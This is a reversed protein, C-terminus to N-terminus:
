LIKPIKIVAITGGDESNCYTLGYEEGYQMQIRQNVNHVGLGGTNKTITEIGKIHNNIKDIENCEGNDKVFIKLNDGSAELGIEIKLTDDKVYDFGHNVANEVLPQVIMKPILYRMDENEITIKFDIKDGYKLMQLQMYDEIQKLENEIPVMADPEKISYRMINALNSLAQAIDAEGRILSICCISDLSNYVFHPNIQAQLMNLKAKKEEEVSSYVQQILAKIRNMLLNYSEYMSGIEDRNVGKYSIEDFKENSLMHSSLNKIPKAIIKSIYIIVVIVAFMVVIAIIIIIRIYDNVMKDIDKTPILTILNLGGSLPKTRLFMKNDQIDVQKLTNETAKLDIGKFLDNINTEDMNKNNAYIISGDNRYLITTSEETLKTTNIRNPIWSVDFSIFVVGIDKYVMTDGAVNELTIRKSCCIVNDDVPSKFWCIEGKSEMTKQFWKEASVGNEKYISTSASYNGKTYIDNQNYDQLIESLPISSNVFYIMKYYPISETLTIDMNYKLTQKLLNYNQVMSMMERNDNLLLKPFYSTDGKLMKMSLEIRSFFDNANATNNDTSLYLSNIISQKTTNTFYFLLSLSIIFVSFLTVGFFLLTLKKQFAQKFEIKKNFCKM